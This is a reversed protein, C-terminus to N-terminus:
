KMMSICGLGNGVVVGSLPVISRDRSLACEIVAVDVGIIDTVVDDIGNCNAFVM